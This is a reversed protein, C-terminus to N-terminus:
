RTLPKSNLNCIFLIFTKISIISLKLIWLKHSTLLLEMSKSELSGKSSSEINITIQYIINDADSINKLIQFIEALFCSVKEQQEVVNEERKFYSIILLILLNAINWSGM